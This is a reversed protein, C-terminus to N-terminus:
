AKFAKRVPQAPIVLVARAELELIAKAERLDRQVRQDMQVLIGKAARLDLHEPIEKIAKLELQARIVSLVLEQLVLIEKLVKHVPEM